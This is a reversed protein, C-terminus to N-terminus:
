GAGTTNWSGLRDGIGDIEGQIGTPRLGTGDPETTVIAGDPQQYVLRTGGVSWSPFAGDGVFRVDGRASVLYIKPENEFTYVGVGLTTGDPSWALGSMDKSLPLQRAGLTAAAGSGDAIRLEITTHGDTDEAIYALTGGDPSMAPSGVRVDSPAVLQSITGDPAVREIFSSSAQGMPAILISGDPAYSGDVVAGDSTVRSVSGDSRLVFLDVPSEPASADGANAWAFLLASGDPSWSRPWASGSPPAFLLRSTPNTPSSSPDFARIDGESSYAIWGRLAAPQWSAAVVQPPVDATGTAWLFAFSALGLALAAAIVSLRRWPAPRPAPVLRVVRGGVRGAIDTWLDDVRLDDTAAFRERLDTM